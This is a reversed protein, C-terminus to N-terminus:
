RADPEEEYNIEEIHARDAEKRLQRCQEWEFRDKITAAETTQWQMNSVHDAGGSCLPQIHDVVYGPCAGRAKGTSPCPNLRRFEAKAAPSRTSASATTIVVVLLAAAHRFPFM